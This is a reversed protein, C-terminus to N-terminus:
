QGSPLTLCRCGPHAPASTHGTPFPEGAATSGALSNDECDPCAPHGPDITWSLTTGPEISVAMGGGHAFRFIDDLQDDIHQTKWERYVSRVRKTIDENDGAGDSVARALRERLPRLLDTRLLDHASEVAGTKSLKRRLTKTDNIGLEGAGAAAAALLEEQLAEAYVTLHEDLEPLLEDLSTVPRQQRLADLVGNQEDALARKIRRAGAVILPVIAEDRRSFPTPQPESVDHDADETVEAGDVRIDVGDVDIDADHAPAAVHVAPEPASPPVESRLRAFIDGVDHRDDPEAPDDGVQDVMEADEAAEADAVEADDEADDEAPQPAVRGRFLSVVNADRVPTPAVDREAADALLDTEAADVIDILETSAAAAQSDGHDTHDGLEAMEAIEIVEIDDADVAGHDADGTGPTDVTPRDAVDTTGPAPRGNPVMLPVPGTTHALNVLQDPSDIAQLDSTVDVAVLRAREFVQLLRDRGHLLEEIQHRALTTRRELDALVRERYSRAENVMERGQQKALAVEAEADASSDYRKRAVEVETEQRIRNAEETAERVVRAANEEARIKIESASERATHLVRLTEEGLMAAVTEDDLELTKPLASRATHLEAELQRQREQLRALESAVSGLFARVEDQHYGRRATSFGAEAVSAPSSPDPRSLSAAM